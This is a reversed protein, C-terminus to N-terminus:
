WTHDLEHQRFPLRTIQMSKASNGPNSRYMYLYISGSSGGVVAPASSSWRGPSPYIMILRYIIQGIQGLRATNQVLSLGGKGSRPYQM